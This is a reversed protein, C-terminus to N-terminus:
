VAEDNLDVFNYVSKVHEPLLTLEINNDTEVAHLLNAPDPSLSVPKIVYAFDQLLQILDIGQDVLGIMRSILQYANPTLYSSAMFGIITGVPLTTLLNSKLNLRITVGDPLKELSEINRCYGRYDGNLIQFLFQGNYSQTYDVTGLESSTHVVEIWSTSSDTVTMQSYPLYGGISWLGEQSIATIYQHVEAPYMPNPVVILSGNAFAAQPMSDISLYETPRVGGSDAQMLFTYLSESTADVFLSITVENVIVGDDINNQLTTFAGIGVLAGTDPRVMAVEGYSIPDADTGLNLVYNLFSLGAVRPAINGSEYVLAGQLDTQSSSPTYNVGSGLKIKIAPLVGNSIQSDLWAQGSTTLYIKM